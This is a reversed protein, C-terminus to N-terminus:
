YVTFTRGDGACRRVPRSPNLEELRAALAVVQHDCGQKYERTQSNQENGTQALSTSKQEGMQAIPARSLSLTADRPEIFWAVYDITVDFDVSGGVALPDWIIIHFYTGEPPSTSASGLLNPSTTINRRPIGQIRPIDVSLGLEKNAGYVGKGELVDSTVGGFEIIQDSNTLPTVDADQRLACHMTGTGRNKFQVKIRASEVAFHNYFTMMQDFGMPQHGTSTYDPDFLDNARFVYTTVVGSASTLSASTHYRLLKRVKPAFLPM